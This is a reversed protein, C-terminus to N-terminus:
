LMGPALLPVGMGFALPLRGPSTPQDMEASGTSPPRQPSVGASPGNYLYFTRTLGVSHREIWRV